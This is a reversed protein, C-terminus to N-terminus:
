LWQEQYIVQRLVRIALTAMRELEGEYYEPQDLLDADNHPDNIHVWRNRYMRLTHLDKKLEPLLPSVEILEYFSLKKMKSDFHYEYRLHAEIAAQAVLITALNAASCFAQDADRILFTSWESLIVSGVLLENDLQLIYEQRDHKNM